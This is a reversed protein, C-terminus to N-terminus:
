GTRLTPNPQYRCGEGLGGLGRGWDEEGGGVKKRLELLGNSLSTGVVGAFFGIVAFVAGKYVLNTLRQM